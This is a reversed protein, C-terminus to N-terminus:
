LSGVERTIISVMRALSSSCASSIASRRNSNPVTLLSVFSLGDSRGDSRDRWARPPEHDARAGRAARNANASIGPNDLLRLVVREKRDGRKEPKGQGKKGVTFASRGRRSAERGSIQRCM